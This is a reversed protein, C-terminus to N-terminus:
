DEVGGPIIKPQRYIWSPPRVGLIPYLRQYTRLGLKFRLILDPYKKIMIM